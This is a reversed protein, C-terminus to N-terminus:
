IPNSSGSALLIGNIESIEGRVQKMGARADTEIREDLLKKPFLCKGTVRTCPIWGIKILVYVHKEHIGLYKAAEKTNM